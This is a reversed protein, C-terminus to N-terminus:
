HLQLDLRVNNSNFEKLDQLMVSKFVAEVTYIPKGKQALTEWQQRDTPTSVVYADNNNLITKQMSPTIKATIVTADGSQLIRQMVAVEPSVNKTLYITKGQFLRKSKARNLINVLTDGLDKEKVEDKLLFPTEDLLRGAKVSEDVWDKTVIIPVVALCCLLKETRSLQKVVLHTVQGPQDTYSAGLSKLTRIEPSKADLGLGTSMIVVKKGVKTPPKAHPPNDFSSIQDGSQQTTGTQQIQNLRGKLKKNKQITEKDQDDENQTTVNKRRKDLKTMSRVKKTLGEPEDQESESTDDDDDDDHAQNRKGIKKLSGGVDVGGSGVVNTSLRKRKKHASNSKQELAFRNADPMLDALKAAGKVAALRRTGGLVINETDIITYARTIATASPPEDLSSSSSSSDSDQNEAVQNSSQRKRPKRQPTSLSKNNSKTNRKDIKSKIFKSQQQHDQENEDHTEQEDEDHTDQESLPSSEGENSMMDDKSQINTSGNNTNNIRHTTTTTVNVTMMKTQKKDINSQDVNQASSEDRTGKMEEVQDTESDDQMGFNRKKSRIQKRKKNIIHDEEDKNSDIDHKKNNNNSKSNFKIKNNQDLKLIEEIEIDDLDEPADLPPMGKDDDDDEMQILNQIQKLSEKKSEVNEIQNSWNLLNLKSISTSGLISTFFTSSTSDTLFLTSTSPEIFNWNLICQELWLHSVLPIKWSRAHKVKEGYESATVVYDTTRSLTGDFKGGLLEILTRVYDRASAAYNSVTFLKGKFQQIGKTSPLPFHLLRDTPSDLKNTALVHYLWSLNGITKNEDFATWFEWGQRSKTIVTNSKLLEQHARKLIEDQNDDQQESDLSFSWCQGGADLIRTKLALELGKRIGLESAFYVRRGKFIDNKAGVPEKTISTTMSQQAMTFNDVYQKNNILLNVNGDGLISKTSSLQTLLNTLESSQTPQGIITTTTKFNEVNNKSQWFEILRQEFPKIVHQPQNQDDQHDFYLPPNPFRYFDIPVIQGLKLCEEFWHPLVISMGLTPAYKLLREFAPGSPELALVHTTERTPISFFQGGLSTVAAQVADVDLQPLHCPSADFCAFGMGAFLLSKDPSFFQPAKLRQMDYSRTVWIPLVIKVRQEAINHDTSQKSQSPRLVHYEAFDLTDTIVHTIKDLNFRVLPTTSSSSSSSSPTPELPCQRAGNSLLLQDLKDKVVPALSDNLFYCVDKFLTQDLKISMIASSSSSTSSM